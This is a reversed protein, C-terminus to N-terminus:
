RALYIASILLTTTLISGAIYFDNERLLLQKTDQQMTTQISTDEITFEQNQNFDYKNHRNLSNRTHYYQGITKGINTRNTKMQAIQNEYDQAIEELPAIQKQLIARHCGMPTYNYQKCYSDLTPEYNHNDFGETSTTFGSITGSPTGHITANTIAGCYKYTDQSSPGPNFDSSTIPDNIYKYTAYDKYESYSTVNRFEPRTTNSIDTIIMKKKRIYLDSNKNPVYEPTKNKGIYCTQQNNNYFFYNCAPNGNCNEQCAAQTIGSRTDPNDPLKGGENVLGISPYTDYSSINALAPHSMSVPQLSKDGLANKAYYPTQISPLRSDNAYLYYSQGKVSPNVADTYVFNTNSLNVNGNVPNTYKCGYVATKLILNGDNTVELKFKNNQSVLVKSSQSKANLKYQAGITGWSANSVSTYYILDLMNARVEPISFSEWVINSTGDTAYGRIEINGTDTLVLEFTRGTYIGTTINSINATTNDGYTIIFDGTASLSFNSVSPKSSNPGHEWITVYDYNTTNQLPMNDAVYCNYNSANAPKVLAYYPKKALNSSVRCTDFTHANNDLLTMNIAPTKSYENPGVCKLPYSVAADIKFNIFQYKGTNDKEVDKQCQAADLAPTDKSVPPPSTAQQIKSNLETQNATEKNTLSNYFSIFNNSITVLRDNIYRTKFVDTNQRMQQRLDIEDQIAREQDATEAFTKAQTNLATSTSNLTIGTGANIASDFRTQLSNGQNQATSNYQNISNQKSIIESSNTQNTSISTQTNLSTAKPYSQKDIAVTSGAIDSASQANNTGITSINNIQPSVKNYIEKYINVANTYNTNIQTRKTSEDNLKTTKNREATAQYGRNTEKNQKATDRNSEETRKYSANTNASNNWWTADRRHRTILAPLSNIRNLLKTNDDKKKQAAAKPATQSNRNREHINAQGQWWGADRNARDRRDRNRQRNQKTGRGAERNYNNAANRNNNRNVIANNYQNNYYNYANNANTIATNAEAIQNKIWQINNRNYENQLDNARATNGNAYNRHNNENNQYTTVNKQFESEKNAYDDAANKYRKEQGENDVADAKDKDAQVILMTADDIYKKFKTSLEGNIREIDNARIANTDKANLQISVKKLEAWQNSVNNVDSQKIIAAAGSM